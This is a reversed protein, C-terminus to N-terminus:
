ATREGDVWVRVAVALRVEGWAAREVDVPPATVDRRPRGVLGREGAERASWAARLARPACADAVVRSAAEWSADAALEGVVVVLVRATEGDAAILRRLREWCRAAHDWDVEGDARVRRELWRVLFARFDDRFRDGAAGELHLLGWRSLVQHSSADRPLGTAYGQLRALPSTQGPAYSSQAAYRRALEVEDRVSAWRPRAWDVLDDVRPLDEPAPPTEHQDEAELCPVPDFVTGCPCRRWIGSHRVIAATTACEDCHTVHDLGQPDFM